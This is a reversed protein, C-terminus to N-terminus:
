ESETRRSRKWARRYIYLMAALGLISLLTAALDLADLHEAPCDIAQHTNLREALRYTQAPTSFIAICHGCFDDTEANISGAWVDYVSTIDGPEFQWIVKYITPPDRRRMLSPRGLSTGSRPVNDLNSQRTLKM